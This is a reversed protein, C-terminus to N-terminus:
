RQKLRDPWTQGGRFQTKIGLGRQLPHLLQQFARKPSADGKGASCKRETLRCVRRPSEACGFQQCGLEQKGAKSQRGDILCM